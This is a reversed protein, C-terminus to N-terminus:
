RIISTRALPPPLLPFPRGDALVKDAVCLGMAHRRISRHLGRRIGILALQVQQCARDRERRCLTERQIHLLAAIDTHHAFGRCAIRAVTRPVEGRRVLDPETNGGTLWLLGRLTERHFAHINGRMVHHM